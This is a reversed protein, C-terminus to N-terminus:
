FDLRLTIGGSLPNTTATYKGTNPRTNGTSTFLYDANLTTFQLQNWMNYLQFQVRLNAGRGVKIPIRRAMTFDWNWWSPHRLVGIPANGLNGVAGNPQPRRFANVNFHAQDAFPLSADVTYGSFIPEGTLECRVAVGSLSPDSNAVGAINTDCTPNLANGTTFQTVGSAEWDGLVTRLVPVSPTPNPIAYSYHFVLIHRRDQNQSASPPGYYRDRIGQAGYLEETVFDWGQVGEAKSLTYALGMQLGKNLRRQVSVQLANYNLIDTDTTLYRVPGLGAYDRRLFNASIPENRFLNAPNGYADIPINNATKVTWFHRGFNGVWAVEAVTHFGIDRQFAINAQYNKEPQLKGQPMQNGHVPLPFGAPLNATQPSEAFQTGARAFATVDDITANLITRTRAILSGGNYLYQSRNIFNYFIGGSGRIATKGNGTVDWAFGARPGVSAAPMDYYWGSKEGPLGGTFMGNTISGTGPITNGAYAQSLIQGTIPNIAARNATSCAQNGPVGNPKCFPLYLLPAQKPDWRNPDFASNMNRSEYVAGAHTVRVGYDLTMRSNIRWSDQAYGDSQWHRNEQDVRNTLESYSTFNGLLANAYGNGTSLPNDASHGFNYLGTYTNSGPETKSDRETFFGFKL